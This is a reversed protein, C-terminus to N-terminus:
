THYAAPRGHLWRTLQNPLPDIGTSCRSQQLVPGLLEV